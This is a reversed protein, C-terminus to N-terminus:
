GAAVPRLTFGGAIAGDATRHLLRIDGLPPLTRAKGPEADKGRGLWELGLALGLYPEAQHDPVELTPTGAGTWTLVVAEPFPKSPTGGGPVFSKGIPKGAFWRRWSGSPVALHVRFQGSSLEDPLAAQLSLRNPGTGVQAAIFTTWHVPQRAMENMDFPSLNHQAIHRDKQPNSGLTPAAGLPQFKNPYEGDMIRVKVCPHGAKLWEAPTLGGLDMGMTMVAEQLAAVLGAFVQDVDFQFGVVDRTLPDLYFQSDFTAGLNAPDLSSLAPLPFNPGMVSNFALADCLVQIPYQADFLQGAIAKGANGIVAVVYYQGGAPLAVPAQIHGATDTLFVQSTQFFNDPVHDVPVVPMAGDGNRRGDDGPYSAVYLIGTEAGPFLPVPSAMLSPYVLPAEQPSDDLKGNGIWLGLQDVLRVGAAPNFGLWTQNTQTGGEPPPMVPWQQGAVTVSNPVTGPAGLSNALMQYLPNDAPVTSAPDLPMLGPELTYGPQAIDPAAASLSGFLGNPDGPWVLSFGGYLGASGDPSLHGDFSASSEQHYSAQLRKFIAYFFSANAPM